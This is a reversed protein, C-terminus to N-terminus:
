NVALVMIMPSEVFVVELRQVESLRGGDWDTGGVGTFMLPPPSHRRRLLGM